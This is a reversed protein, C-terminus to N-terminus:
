LSAPDSRLFSIRVERLTGTEMERAELIMSTRLHYVEEVVLILLEDDPSYSGIKEAEGSCSVSWKNCQEQFSVRHKEPNQRAATGAHPNSRSSLIELPARRIMVPLIPPKATQREEAKSPGSCINLQRTQYYNKLM